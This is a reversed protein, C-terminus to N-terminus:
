FSVTDVGNADSHLEIVVPPTRGGSHVPRITVTELDSWGAMGPVIDTITTPNGRGVQPKRGYSPTWAGEPLPEVSLSSARFSMTM